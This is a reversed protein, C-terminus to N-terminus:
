DRVTLRAELAAIYTYGPEFCKELLFVRWNSFPPFLLFVVSYKVYKQQSTLNQICEPLEKGSFDTQLVSKLCNSQSNVM